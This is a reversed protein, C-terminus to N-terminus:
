SANDIEEHRPVTDPELYPRLWIREVIPYCAVVPLVVLVGIVGAALAAALCAILVTLTSLRLRKGYVKPVIYYNEIVHYAAYLIAVLGAAMPSVTFAVIVAPITFLFFGILPLLDFIGALVALLAADPVGLIQLVTFAYVACIVSTILNGAVFHSVVSTVEDSAAAVKGRQKGPLLAVLWEYVREGDAIFYLSLILVIFFEVLKEVAYSSWSVLRRLLPQPDLFAPASFLHDVMNRIPGRQPMEQLFQQRFAPLKQILATGEQSVTPIFLGFVVGTVGFLVVGCLLIGCWKPWHHKETWVLLPRFAIAIILSLLLLEILRSLTVVLYAILCALLVKLITGWSITIEMQRSGGNYQM